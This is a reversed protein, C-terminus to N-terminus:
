ELTFTQEFNPMGTERWNAGAELAHFWKPPTHTKSWQAAGSVMRKLREPHQNSLDHQEAVDQHINHLRWPGNYARCAKWQDQRIAVDSYGERHRLAYLPSDSRPNKGAQFDEWVDVGDLIKGAPIEADALRAFTPYFDLASIPHDFRRGAAIEGPWHWFMPVRFGGEYTDGKGGKLPRNTAGSRLQGGNDSLFVILTNQMKGTADLADSLEGVGRDVAHVMGAYIRRKEDRIDSYHELDEQKAELPTHPANYALYLFFPQEREAAQKVFRVAEHSLADTLYKTEKVEKGNHELPTIYDWIRDVNAKLQQEYRRRYDEPFYKHGGGLFGYFDDFGRANPHFQPAAGMHWKGVAGTYYGGQQLVKSILPQTTDIGQRYYEAKGDGTEPLNFPAGFTHPYRGTMLGMRSPGCFPHVVYASTCITGAEALRDLSPTRIDNSGNFGVDSYGLDDCMILVINPRQTKSQEAVVVSSFLFVIIVSLLKM